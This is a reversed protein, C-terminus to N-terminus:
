GNIIYSHCMYVCACLRICMIVVLSAGHQFVPDYFLFQATILELYSTFIPVFMSLNYKIFKSFLCIIIGFRQVMILTMIQGTRTARRWDIIVDSALCNVAGYCLSVQFNPLSTYKM